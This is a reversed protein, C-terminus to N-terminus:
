GGGVRGGHGFYVARRRVLWRLLVSGLNEANELLVVLKFFESDLALM